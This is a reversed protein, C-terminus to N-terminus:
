REIDSNCDSDLALKFLLTKVDGLLLMCCLLDISSILSPLLDEATFKGICVCSECIM